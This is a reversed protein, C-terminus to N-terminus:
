EPQPASIGEILSESPVESEPREPELDPGAWSSSPDSTPFTDELEIDLAADTEADIESQDISGTPGNRAGVGKAGPGSDTLAGAKDSLADVASKVEPRSTLQRVQAELREYPKRGQKSGLVFGVAVGLLLLVKKM